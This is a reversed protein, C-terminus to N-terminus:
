KFHFDGDFHTWIIGSKEIWFHAGCHEAIISPYVSVKKQRVVVKWSPRKSHMLNLELRQSCNNPCMLILWKRKGGREVIYLENKEFREPVDVFSSVFHPAQYFAQVKFKRKKM